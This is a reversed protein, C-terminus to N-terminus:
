RPSTMHHKASRASIASTRIAKWVEEVTMVAGKDWARAFSADDLAAHELALTREIAEQEFPKAHTPLRARLTAAASSLWVAREVEWETCFLPALAELNLVLARMDGGVALLIGYSERYCTFAQAADGRSYALAGLLHITNALGM